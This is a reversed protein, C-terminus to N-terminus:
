SAGRRRASSPPCSCTSPLSRALTELSHFRISGTSTPDIEYVDRGSFSSVPLELKWTDILQGNADRQFDSKKMNPVFRVYGGVDAVLAHQKMTGDPNSEVVALETRVAADALAALRDRPLPDLEPFSFATASWLLVVAGIFRLM